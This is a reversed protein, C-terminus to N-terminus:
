LSLVTGAHLVHRVHPRTPFPRVRFIAALLLESRLLLGIITLNLALGGAVRAVPVRGGVGDAHGAM